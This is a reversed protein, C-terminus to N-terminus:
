GRLGGCECSKTNLVSAADQALTTCDIVRYTTLNTRAITLIECMEAPFHPDRAHGAGRMVVTASASVAIVPIRIEFIQVRALTM